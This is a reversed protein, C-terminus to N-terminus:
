IRLLKSFPIIADFYGDAEVIPALHGEYVLATRVTVGRRHPLSAVKEAVEDIVNRGIERRRKIEVLCISKRAQILLDIQVGKRSGDRSAQRRYPAASVIQVNGLGLMVVLGALNALVLNEFQLGMVSDWGELGDLSGFAFTGRDISEKAPEIYRLYFRSYNDNLRYVSERTVHGSLPNVGSDNVVLGCEALQGLSDSIRGGREMGIERAIESVSKPGSKLCRLVSATFQPQRTIVDAFMEDFDERLPGKPLFCLRRINEAASVSSDIEELYRPVGGTVSLVDLIERPDTRAAAKGWFRVCEWIPLEPVVIDLSRRGYFSGDELINDKIWSSVSGCLVLVLKPHKKFNDDWASKLMGAFMPDYYAMWSIEDLLVVTRENDRIQGDLRLFANYWNDPVSSDCHTQASLKIAFNELESRNDLKARPKIGEIKIFRARAREAFKEILTSKGIRRRGRCTVLSSTKKKFLGELREILEERGFFM